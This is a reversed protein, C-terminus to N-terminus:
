QLDAKDPNYYFRFRLALYPGTFESPLPPFPNSATISGWAPRDLAVDGSSAVLRMDAVYARETARDANAQAERAKEDARVANANAKVAFWSAVVSGAVLTVVAVAVSAAVTPYRRCWRWAREAIGVPRASIAEGAMWRRLDSALDTQMQVMLGKSQPIDRWRPRTMEIVQEVLEWYRTQYSAGPLTEAESFFMFKM